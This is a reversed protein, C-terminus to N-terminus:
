GAKRTCPETMGTLIKRDGRYPERAHAVMVNDILLVDGKRWPFVVKEELYIQRLREVVDPEIPSGDGYYTHNPLDEEPMAALLADRVTPHLTSVHFFTGHNFWMAEGTRPHPTVAPLIRRVRLRDGEKWEVQMGVKKCYAEVESRDSTQFVSQWTLGLGDGFNRVYMIQKREFAERIEAPIKKMVNRCDVIPTEGGEDPEIACAFILKLPFTHQYSNENHPFISQEAPYDTSTYVNGSVQSRPTSREKYELLEGSVARIFAEFRAPEHIGFGRFLVAGHEALRRDLEARNDGAWAVLDVGDVAPEVLAPLRQGPNLEGFRVLEGTSVATAKRKIAGIKKM